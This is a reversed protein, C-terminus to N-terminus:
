THYAGATIASVGSSLGSVAVPTSNDGLTGNGLNGFSNRGWCLVAGASTLACTHFGGAAIASVGSSLSSVAVPIGSDINTGTGLQGYLNYGWCLVAGARTLACTHFSGASIASVGSSLGSVAVPTSSSGTAGNGLRGYINEGWCLVAGASTLACTHTDGAVVQVATNMVALVLVPIDPPAAVVQQVQAGLLGVMLVIAIMMIRTVGSTIDRKQVAEGKVGSM